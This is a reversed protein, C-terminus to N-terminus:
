PDARLTLVEVKPWAGLRYPVSGGIGTSVFLQQGQECYLGGWEPQIWQAPSFNGIQLQFAHTHGSLTLPIDTHPLVEHRWSWPDHSLLITCAGPPVAELAKPISGKSPFPPRGINEVGLIYLTDAGRTVATSQNRLLQWGLAAEVEILKRLNARELGPTAQHNYISYDHNGLIALVGDKAQLRALVEAHPAVEDPSINILDGTFVILDPKLANVTEVVRSPFSPNQGYTGIHLDSIQVIKYNDFAQPLQKLHIERPCVELRRGGYITCYLQLGFTAIALLLAVKTGPARLVPAVLALGAALLDFVMFFLKPVTLCLLLLFFTQWLLQLNIRTFMLLICAAILVTPLLLLCTPLLSGAHRTYVRWIYLDPLLIVALLILLFRFMAPAKQSPPPGRPFLSQPIPPESMPFDMIAPM